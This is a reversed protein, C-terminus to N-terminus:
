GEADAETYDGTLLRALSLAGAAIPNKLKGTAELVVRRAQHRDELVITDGFPGPRISKVCRAISDPWAAIPLLKGHEDYLERIDARASLAELALAEDGSMQLRKFRAAALTNIPERIKTNRLLKSANVAAANVSKCEPYAALYAQTGNGGNADYEHVFRQQEATLGPPPKLEVQERRKPAKRRKAL